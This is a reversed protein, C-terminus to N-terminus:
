ECTPVYPVGAISLTDGGAAPDSWFVLGDVAVYFVQFVDDFAVPAGLAASAADIPEGMTVGGPLVLPLPPEGFGEHFTWLTFRGVGDEDLRFQAVLGGWEVGRENTGPGDVGRGM